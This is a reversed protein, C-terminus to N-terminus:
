DFTRFCVNEFPSFPEKFKNAPKTLLSFNICHRKKVSSIVFDHNMYKMHINKHLGFVPLTFVFSSFPHCVGRTEPSFTLESIYFVFHWAYVLRPGRYIVICFLWWEEEKCSSDCAVAFNLAVDCWKWCRWKNWTVELLVKWVKEKRRIRKM